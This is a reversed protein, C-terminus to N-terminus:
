PVWRSPLIVPPLLKIETDPKLSSIFGWVFPLLLLLRSCSRSRTCRRAASAGARGSAPRQPRRPATPRRRPPWRSRGRRRLLGLAEALRFQLFTLAVLVVFFIWRWRAPTAADRQVPLRQTYIHLAYLWTAYAPGATPRSSRTASRRAARRHHRAGPQLLADALDDAAHHEPVAALREAGDLEAVEYLDKPVGQLGALFILMMNGGIAGWLALM